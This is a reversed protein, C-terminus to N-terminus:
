EKVLPDEELLHRDLLIDILEQDDKQKILLVISHCADTRLIPDPEFQMAWILAKRIEPTFTAMLGLAQTIFFYLISKYSHSPPTSKSQIALSKIKTVRDFRAVYLLADIIRVDVQNLRQTSKCALERVSICDDRFCKLFVELLSPTMIGIYNLMKLAECRDFVNQSKMRRVLEDHVMAGKGTRGLTQSAVKRVSPHMDNWVLDMLKKTVRKLM